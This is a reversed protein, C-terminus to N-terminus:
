QDPEVLQEALRVADVGDMATADAGVKDALEPQESFLRGGVIVKINKNKSRERASRLLDPVSDLHRDTAMSLGIVDFRDSELLGILEEDSRPSGSWVRWGERRFFEVLMMLGFTHQEGPVPIILVSKADDPSESCNACFFPSFRLLVQHMRSIGLTVTAFSCEDSEWLEGLRRAAPALLNLYVVPLTEGNERLQEIYECVVDADNELVLAVFADVEQSLSPASHAPPAPAAGTLQHDFLMMLRPIIEGEISRALGPDDWPEATPPNTLLGPNGLLQALVELSPDPSKSTKM